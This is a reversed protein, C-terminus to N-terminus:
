GGRFLLDGSTYPPPLGCFLPRGREGERWLAYGQNREDAVCVNPAVRAPRTAMSTRNQIVEPRGLADPCGPVQETHPYNRAPRPWGPVRVGPGGPVRETHPYSPTPEPIASPVRTAGPRPWGLTPDAYSCPRDDFHIDERVSVHIGDGPPAM